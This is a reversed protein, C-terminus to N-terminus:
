PRDQGPRCYLMRIDGDLQWEGFARPIAIVQGAEVRLRGTAGTLEAAGDLVVGVGFGAPATLTGGVAPALLDVTFFPLAADTLLPQPAPAVSTPETWRVLRGLGARDLRRHDVATLAIDFGLDLHAQSRDAQTVSWELLISLDTPEQVELVFIGADIAHATGAPVLIGDGPRVPIRNMRSLFWDHDQHDTARALEVPDVEDRFGLWVSPVSATGNETPAPAAAARGSPAGDSGTGNGEGDATADPSDVSLVYWAETKGYCSGLHAQAFPRDPHVHVPLRQGADLLKVLIGTDAPGQPGGDPNGLWGEPDEAIVEALLRGDAVRSPGADPDGARHVTAALWEEPQFGNGPDIGRLAALRAGGRYFHTLVNPPLVVPTPAGPRAGTM